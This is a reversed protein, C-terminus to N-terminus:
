KINHIWTAFHSLSQPNRQETYRVHEDVISQHVPSEGHAGDGINRIEALNSCGM